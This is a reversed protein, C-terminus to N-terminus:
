TKETVVLEPLLAQIAATTMAIKTIKTIATMTKTFIQLFFFLHPGYEKYKINITHNYSKVWLGLVSNDMECLKKLVVLKQGLLFSM